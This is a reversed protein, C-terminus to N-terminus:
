MLRVQDVLGEPIELLNPYTGKKLDGSYRKFAGFDKGFMKAPKGSYFVSYILIGLSYIDSAPFNKSILVHEPAMFELSPQSLAHWSQNYEIFPWYLQSDQQVQALV